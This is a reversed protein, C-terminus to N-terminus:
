APLDPSAPDTYIFELPKIATLGCVWMLASEVGVVHSQPISSESRCYVWHEAQEYESWLQDETPPTGNSHTGSLPATRVDGLVWALTDAVSQPYGGPLRATHAQAEALM